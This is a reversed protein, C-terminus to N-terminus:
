KGSLDNDEDVIKLEGDLCIPERRNNRTGKISRCEISGYVYCFAYYSINRANIDGANIDWANINWANIDGANIDGANIDGVNIDWANINWANIDGANIDWANINWANINGANINGVNIDGANIDGVNIDWANINGANIDGRVVISADISVPCEFKVDEEVVLVSNKIDKEVEEQTKYIKMQKFYNKINLKTPAPLSGSGQEDKL